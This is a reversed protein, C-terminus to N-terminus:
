RLRYAFSAGDDPGVLGAAGQQRRHDAGISWPPLHGEGAIVQGQNAPHGRGTADQELHAVVRQAARVHHAEELVQQSVDRARQQHDPVARGEMAGLDDLVEQGLTRGLAQAELGQRGVRGLEVRGLARQCM